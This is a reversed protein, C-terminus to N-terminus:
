GGNTGVDDQQIGLAWGSRAKESASASIPVSEVPYGRRQLETCAAAMRHERVAPWSAIIGPNDPHRAARDRLAQLLEALAQESFRSDAFTDASPQAPPHM